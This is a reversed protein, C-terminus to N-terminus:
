FDRTDSSTANLNHTEYDGLANFYRSHAYISDMNVYISSINMKHNRYVVRFIMDPFFKGYSPGYDLDYKFRCIKNKDWTEVTEIYPFQSAQGLSTMLEESRKTQELKKKGSSTWGYVYNRGQSIILYLTDSERNALSSFKNIMDNPVQPDPWNATLGNWKKWARYFPRDPLEGSPILINSFPREPPMPSAAMAVLGALVAAVFYLLMRFSYLRIM